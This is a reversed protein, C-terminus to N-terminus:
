APQGAAFGGAFGGPAPLPAAPKKVASPASPPSDPFDGFGDAFDENEGFDAAFSNASPPAARPKARTKAAPPAPADEEFDGFDAEFGGANGRRGGGGGGGGGMGDLSAQAEGLKRTAMEREAPLLSSDALVQRYMAAATEGEGLKLRMNAASVLMGGRMSLAYAAEFCACAAGFESNANADKGKQLLQLVLKDRGNVSGTFAATPIQSLVKLTQM